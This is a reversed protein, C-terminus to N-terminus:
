GDRFTKIKEKVRNFDIKSLNSRIINRSHLEHKHIINIDDIHYSLAFHITLFIIFIWIMTTHLYYNGSYASSYAFLYSCDEGNWRKYVRTNNYPSYM